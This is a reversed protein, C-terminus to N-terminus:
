CPLAVGLLWALQGRLCLLPAEAAELGLGGLVAKHRDVSTMGSCSHDSSVAQWGGGEAYGVAAM